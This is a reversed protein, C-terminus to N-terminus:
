TESDVESLRLYNLAHYPTWHVRGENSEWMISFGGPSERVQIIEGTFSRQGKVSIEVNAKKGSLETIRWGSWKRIESSWAYSESIKDITARVRISIISALRKMVKLASVPQKSFIVNFDSRSLEVVTSNEMAVASSPRPIQGIFSSEGFVGGPGLIAHTEPYAESSSRFIKINGAAVIFLSDGKDGESFVKEKTMVKRTSCIEALRGIEESPFGAFVFSEKLANEVEKVM